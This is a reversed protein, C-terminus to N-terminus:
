SFCDSFDRAITSQKRECESTFFMYTNDMVGLAELADMVGVVADDVSLLARWRDRFLHDIEGAQEETIADQQSILWHHDALQEKSANYAGGRPAALADIFTGTLYWPAPTAAVHPAKPAIAVFFPDPGKAVKHLWAISKNAIISTTYGAFEGGATNAKYSGAKGGYLAPPTVPKGGDFDNFTANFFGGPENDSGGGNTFWYCTPCDWGPPPDHPCQNMHKGFWGMTYGAGKVGAADLSQGIHAGFSSPNVVSVNVHMCGGKPTPHRINHFYRGSLLEGRSPCCM